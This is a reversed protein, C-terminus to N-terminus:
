QHLPLYPPVVSVHPFALLSGYVYPSSPSLDDELPVNVNTTSTNKRIGLDISTLDGSRAVLRLNFDNFNGLLSM